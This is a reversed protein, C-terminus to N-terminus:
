QVTLGSDTNYLTIMWLANQKTTNVLMTLATMCSTLRCHIIFLQLLPLLQIKPSSTHIKGTDACARCITQIVHMKIHQLQNVPMRTDQSQTSEQRQTRYLM